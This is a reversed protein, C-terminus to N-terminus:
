ANMATHARVDLDCDGWAGFDLRKAHHFTAVFLKQENARLMIVELPLSTM